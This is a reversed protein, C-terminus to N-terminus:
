FFTIHIESKVSSYSIGIDSSDRLKCLMAVPKFDKKAAAGVGKLDAGLIKRDCEMFDIPCFFDREDMCFIFVAQFVVLVSFVIKNIM